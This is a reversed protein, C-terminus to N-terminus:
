SDGDGTRKRSAEGQLLRVIKWVEYGGYALAVFVGALTFAVGGGRRRDLWWGGGAFLVMAVTFQTGLSM